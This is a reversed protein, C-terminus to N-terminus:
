WDTNEITKFNKSPTYELAKVNRKVNQLWIYYVMRIVTSWKRIQKKTEKQTRKGFDSNKNWNGHDTQIKPIHQTSIKLLALHQFTVKCKLKM